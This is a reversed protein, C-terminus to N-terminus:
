PSKLLKTLAAVLGHGAPNHAYVGPQSGLGGWPRLTTALGPVKDKVGRALVSTRTYTRTDWREMLQEAEIEGTQVDSFFQDGAVCFLWEWRNAFPMSGPDSYTFVCERWFPLTECGRDIFAIWERDPKWASFEQWSGVFVSTEGGCCPLVAGAHGAAEAPIEVLPDFVMVPWSAHGGPGSAELLHRGQGLEATVLALLTPELAPVDIRVLEKHVGVFGVEFEGSAGAESHLGVQIQVMGSFATQVDAWAPRNGGAVWPPRRHPLLFYQDPQNWMGWHQPGYVPELSDSVMGSTSVPTDVWGTVVYGSFSPISRVTEHVRRRIFHSKSVSFRICAAYDIQPLDGALIGPFDHQWRVGQDNLGPDTSAWYPVDAKLAPLDRVHDYDNFEGLLVPVKGDGALSELVPRFFQTDCYPHFDRFTGHERLDGGYMEASGSNDCVLPCGTEDRIMRVMRERFGVPTENGLECGLTWAIISGHRRYQRVIATLEREAQQWFEPSSRPMWLPLEIWAVLGHDALLELMHHPPLWLCFKVTNFGMGAILALEKACEDPSPHPAASGPYWGWTLVGRMFIPQSDRSLRTCNVAIRPPPAVALVGLPDEDSTVVRVPRFIGGFTNFVYPLFGALTEKVPYSPGGNKTVSVEIREPQDSPPVPVSFADWIGTHTHTQRDGGSEVTVSAHYSVGDFM